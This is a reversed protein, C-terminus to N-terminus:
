SESISPRGTKRPEGIFEILSEVPIRYYGNEDLIAKLRPVAYGSEKCEPCMVDPVPPQMARRKRLVCNCEPKIFARIRRSSVNLASAADNVTVTGELAKSKRAALKLKALAVDRSTSM